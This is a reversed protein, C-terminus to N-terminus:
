QVGKDDVACVCGCRGSNVRKDSTMTKGKSWRVSM